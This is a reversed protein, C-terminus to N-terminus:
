LGCTLQFLGAPDQTQQSCLVMIHSQFNLNIELPGELFISVIWRRHTPWLHPQPLSESSLEGLTFVHSMQGPDDSSSLPPVERARGSVKRLHGTVRVDPRSAWTKKKEEATSGWPWRAENLQHSSALASTWIPSLPVTLKLQQGTHFSRHQVSPSVPLHCCVVGAPPLLRCVVIQLWKDEWLCLRTKSCYLFFLLLFLIPLSGFLVYILSGHLHESILYTSHRTGHSPLSNRNMLLDM